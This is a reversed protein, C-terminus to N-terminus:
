VQGAELGQRPALFFKCYQHRFARRFLPNNHIRFDYKQVRVVEVQARLAAAEVLLPIENNHAVPVREAIPQGVAACAEVLVAAVWIGIENQVVVQAGFGARTFREADNASRRGVFFQLCLKLTGIPRRM